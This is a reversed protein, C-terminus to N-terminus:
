VVEAIHPAVSETFFERSFDRSHPSQNKLHRGISKKELRWFVCVAKEATRTREKRTRHVGLYGNCGHKTKETSFM